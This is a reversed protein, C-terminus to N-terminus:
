HQLFSAPLLEPLAADYILGGYGITYIKDGKREVIQCIGQVPQIFILVTPHEASQYLLVDPADAPVGVFTVRSEFRVTAPSLSNIVTLQNDMKRIVTYLTLDMRSTDTNIIVAKITQFEYNFDRQATAIVSSLTLLLLPFIYRM